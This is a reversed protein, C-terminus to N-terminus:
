RNMQCDPEVLSATCKGTRGSIMYTLSGVMSYPKEYPNSVYLRNDSGIINQNTKEDALTLSNVLLVICFTIFKLVLSNM